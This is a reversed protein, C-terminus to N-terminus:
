EKRRTKKKGKSLGRISARLMPKKAARAKPEIEGAPATSGPPEGALRARLADLPALRPDVRAPAGAKPTPEDAPDAGIGTCGESCLPFQPIELLIAERVFPDLVVTEGDYRDLEAEESNFEYEPEASRDKPHKGKGTAEDRGEGGTTATPKAIAAPKLLLSLEGAIVIRAPGLCRVCALTLEASIAARVVIEQGSSSVRGKLHGGAPVSRVEWDGVGVELHADSLAADIWAAPLAVDIPRGEVPIQQAPIAILPKV